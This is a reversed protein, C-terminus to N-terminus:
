PNAPPPPPLRPGADAGTGSCWITIGCLSRPYCTADDQACDAQSAVKTDGPDCSPYGDCQAECAITVGCVTVHTCGATGSSLCSPVHDYGVPCAPDGECKTGPGNGTVGAAPKKASSSGSPASTPSPAPTSSGVGAADGRPSDVAGGCAVLASVLSTALVVVPLALFSSRRLSM